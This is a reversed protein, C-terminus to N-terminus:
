SRYRFFGHLLSTITPNNAAARLLPGPSLDEYMMDWRGRPCGATDLWKRM